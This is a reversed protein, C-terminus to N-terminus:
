FFLMEVLFNIYRRQIPVFHSSEVANCDQIKIESTCSFESNRCNLVRANEFIISYLTKMYFGVQTQKFPRCCLRSCLNTFM